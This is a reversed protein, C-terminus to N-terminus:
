SRSRFWRRRPRNSESDSEIKERLARAEERSALMRRIWVIATQAQEQRIELLAPDTTELLPEKLPQTEWRRLFQELNDRYLSKRDPLNRVTAQSEHEVLVREDLVIDLGHAWVTFSLDLDEASATLYDENWGGLRRITETRMVYVVGSPFEGFPTLVVQETGPSERVSVPNGAATVAPMVIGPHGGSEFSEILQSAWRPPFVTDNNIFAVYTGNAEALGSNMGAAFGLNTDNRVAVDAASTAYEASGDTSGNDVIILESPVDTHRRLSEVCRRTLELNNWSLM